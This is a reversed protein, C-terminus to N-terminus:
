PEANLIIPLADKGTPVFYYRTAPGNFAKYQLYGKTLTKGIARQAEAQAKAKVVIAKAEGEARIRISDGVGQANTRAIEADQKAIEIEFKKQVAEQEKVLKKSISQTVLQEYRIHKISVQEIELPMGELRKRLKMLVADEIAGGEKALDNHKYKSFESRVLTVFAPGIVDKYYTPGIRTHLDYLQSPIPRYTVTVTTPVHLSDLTLIGILEDHSQITVDYAVMSNWPWQWYFGEPLVNQRLAPEDLVINKMAMQGPQILVGCATALPLLALVALRNIIM